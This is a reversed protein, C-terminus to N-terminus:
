SCCVFYQLAVELILTSVGLLLFAFYGHADFLHSRIWESIMKKHKSLNKNASCSDGGNKGYFGWESRIM